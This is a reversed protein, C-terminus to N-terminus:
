KTLDQIQEHHDLQRKQLEEINDTYVKKRAEFMMKKWLGFFENEMLKDVGKMSRKLFAKAKLSRAHDEKWLALATQILDRDRVAAMWKFKHKVYEERKAEKVGAKYRLFGNKLKRRRM